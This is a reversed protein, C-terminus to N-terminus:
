GEVMQRLIEKDFEVWRTDNRGKSRKVVNEIILRNRKGEPVLPAYYNLKGVMSEKYGTRALYIDRVLYCHGGPGM